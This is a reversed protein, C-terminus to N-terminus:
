FESDDFELDEVGNLIARDLDWDNMEMYARAEKSSFQKKGNATVFNNQFQRMKMERTLIGEEEERQLSSSLIGGGSTQDLPILLIEPALSLNTGSFGNAQRLATASIKYKICIGQFTDIPSVTHQIYRGDIGGGGEGNPFCNEMEPEEIPGDTPQQQQHQQQQSVLKWERTKIDRIWILGKPPPPLPIALKDYGGPPGRNTNIKQVKWPFRAGESM